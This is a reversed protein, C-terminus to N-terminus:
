PKADWWLRTQNVDPGSLMARAATVAALNNQIESLTFVLRRMVGNAPINPNLSEILPYGKPYGTRRREAWAEWGDPYLGIWKQTIIQELRTEFSGNSEYSVPINSMAPTNWKDDLAIPTRNSNIYNLITTSSANTREMLSTTIGENYFDEDTGGMKWGRLAGEARLFYVEDASMVRMPPNSGGLQPLFYQIGMKSFEDNLASTKDPIPLGNRVGKYSGDVAESFYESLRPDDYGVLTSQMSASMRFEDWVIVQGHPNQTIQTTAVYANDSNSIMVGDSVAKEAEQQALGPDVYVIRMALRLRLSNAFTLWKKVNGSFVLDNTSFVSTETVHQKLTSVATDLTEFFSSYIDKQSDYSVNTKGNGFQSYIIPGWYDTIRHYLEVKWVEAIAHEVPMENNATYQEVFYLQPAATGYFYTWTYDSWRNIETFQDSSFYSAITAFYQSYLDGYLNQAQQWVTYYGFLGQYQCEAFAQGLLQGNVKDTTISYPDTNITTFNKKCGIASSLSIIM